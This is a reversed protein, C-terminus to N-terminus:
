DESHFNVSTGFSVTSTAYRSGMPAISDSMAGGGPRRNTGRGAVLNGCLITGPGRPGTGYDPGNFRGDAEMRDIRMEQFRHRHTGIAEPRACPRLTRYPSPGKSDISPLGTFSDAGASSTSGLPQEALSFSRAFLWLRNNKFRDPRSHIM